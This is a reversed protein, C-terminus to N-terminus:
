AVEMKHARTGAFVLIIAVIVGIIVWTKKKNSGEFYQKM